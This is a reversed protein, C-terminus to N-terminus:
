CDKRGVNMLSHLEADASMTELGVISATPRPRARDGSGEVDTQYSSTKAACSMLPKTKNVEEWIRVWDYSQFHSKKCIYSSYTPRCPLLIYAFFKIYNEIIFRKNVYLSDSLYM